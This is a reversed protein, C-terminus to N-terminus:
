GRSFSRFTWNWASITAPGRPTNMSVLLLLSASSMEDEGIPPLGANLFLSLLLLLVAGDGGFLPVSPPVVVNVEVVVNGAESALESKVDVGVGVL